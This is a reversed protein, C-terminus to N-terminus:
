RSRTRRRRGASSRIGSPRRRAPTPRSSPAGASSAANALLGGTRPTFGSLLLAQHAAAASPAITTRPEGRGLRGREPIRSQDLAAECRARGDGERLGRASRLRVDRRRRRGGRDICAPRAAARSGRGRAGPPRARSRDGPAAERAGHPRRAVPARGQRARARAPACPAM